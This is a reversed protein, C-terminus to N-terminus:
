QPCARKFGLECARELFASAKKEDKDFPGMGRGYITALNFCDIAYSMKCSKTLYETAKAIDKRVGMGLLYMTGAHHCGLPVRHRCSDLFLRKAKSVSKEVGNGKLYQWGLNACSTWSELKCGKEYFGAANEESKPMGIGRGAAIGAFSCAEGDRLKCGQAYLRAAHARNADLDETLEYGRGALRCAVGPELRSPGEDGSPTTTNPTTSDKATCRKELLSLLGESGVFRRPYLYLRNWQLHAKVLDKGVPGLKEDDSSAWKALRAYAPSEKTEPLCLLEGHLFGSGGKDPRTRIAKEADDLHSEKGTLAHLCLAAAFRLSSPSPPDHLVATAEDPNVKPNAYLRELGAVAHKGLYLAHARIATLRAVASVTPHYLLEGTVRATGPYYAEALSGILDFFQMNHQDATMLAYLTADEYRDWMRALAQHVMRRTMWCTHEKEALFGLAEAGHEGLRALGRILAKCRKSSASGVKCSHCRSAAGGLIAASRRGPARVLTDLASKWVSERESSVGEMLKESEASQPIPLEPLFFSYYGEMKQARQYASTDGVAKATRALVGYLAPSMPWRKLAAVVKARAEKWRENAVLARLLEL